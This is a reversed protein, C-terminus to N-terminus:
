GQAAPLPHPTCHPEKGLPDQALPYGDIQGPDSKPGSFPSAILATLFLALVNRSYAVRGQQPHEGKSLVLM